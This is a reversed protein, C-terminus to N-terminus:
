KDLLELRKLAERKGIGRIEAWAALPKAQPRSRGHEWNYVTLTSVGVLLAYERASLGLRKRDAQVWKPSFRVAEAAARPAPTAKLRGRERGELFQVKRELSTVQRRLEAIAKRQETGRKAIPNLQSRLEKRALRRIEDRLVSALNPM